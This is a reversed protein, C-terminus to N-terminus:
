GLIEIALVRLGLRDANERLPRYISEPRAVLMAGALLTLLAFALILFAM